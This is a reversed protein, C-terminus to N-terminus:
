NQFTSFQLAGDSRRASAARRARLKARQQLEAKFPALAAEPLLHSLDVECLKFEATLPLHSLAQVATRRNKGRSCPWNVRSISCQQLSPIWVGNTRFM